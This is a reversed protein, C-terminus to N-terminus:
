SIQVFNQMYGQKLLHFLVTYALKSSYSVGLCGMGLCIVPIRPNIGTNKLRFTLDCLEVFEM